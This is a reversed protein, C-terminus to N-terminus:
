LSLAKKKDFLHKVLPGQTERQSKGQGAQRCPKRRARKCHGEIAPCVSCNKAHLSLLQHQKVRDSHPYERCAKPRVDYIGCRNDGGLFPCPLHQLVWDQDEDIRLYTAEFQATQM